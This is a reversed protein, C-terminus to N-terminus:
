TELEWHRSISLQLLKQELEELEYRLQYEIKFWLEDDKLRKKIQRVRRNAAVISLFEVRSAWDKREVAEGARVHARGHSVWGAGAASIERTPDCVYCTRKSYAARSM